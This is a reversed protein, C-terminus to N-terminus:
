RRRRSGEHVAGLRARLEDGAHSPHVPARELHHAVLARVHVLTVGRQERHRGRNARRHARIVM